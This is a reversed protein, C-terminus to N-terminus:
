FFHYPRKLYTINSELCRILNTKSVKSKDNYISAINVEKDLFWNSLIQEVMYNKSYTDIGLANEQAFNQPLYMTVLMDSISTDDDDNYGFSGITGTVLYPRSLTQRAYPSYIQILDAKVTEFLSKFLAQYEENLIVAEPLHNGEKDLTTRWIMTSQEEVRDLIFKYNIRLEITKFNKQM